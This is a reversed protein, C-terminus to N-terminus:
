LAKLEIETPQSASISDEKLGRQKNGRDALM